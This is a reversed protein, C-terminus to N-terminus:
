KYNQSLLVPSPHPLIHQPQKILESVPPFDLSRRYQGLSLSYKRHLLFVNEGLFAQLSPLNPKEGLTRIVSVRVEQARGAQAPRGADGLPDGGPLRRLPCLGVRAGAESRRRLPRVATAQFQVFFSSKQLRGEKCYLLDSLTALDEPRSFAM